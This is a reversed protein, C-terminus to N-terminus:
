LIEHLYEYEDAKTRWNIFNYCWTESSLCFHTLELKNEISNPVWPM